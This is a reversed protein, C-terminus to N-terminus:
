AAGELVRAQYSVGLHFPSGSLALGGGAALLLISYSPAVVVCHQWTLKPLGDTPCGVPLPSPTEERAVLAGFGPSRNCLDEPLLM